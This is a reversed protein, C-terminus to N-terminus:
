SEAVHPGPEMSGEAVKPYLLPDYMNIIAHHSSEDTHKAPDITTVVQGELYTLTVDKSQAVALGTCMLALTAVLVRILQTTVPCRRWRV